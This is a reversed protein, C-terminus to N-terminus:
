RAAQAQQLLHATTLVDIDDDWEDLALREENRLGERVIQTEKKEVADAFRNRFNSMTRQRRKQLRRLKWQFLLDGFM